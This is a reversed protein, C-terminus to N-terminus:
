RVIKYVSFVEDPESSFAFPLMGWFHAYFGAHSRGNFLRLPLWSRYEQQDFLNLREQVSPEPKWFNPMVPDILYDGAKPETSDAHLYRAGAKDMYYHM